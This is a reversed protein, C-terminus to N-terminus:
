ESTSLRKQPKPPPVAKVDLKINDDAKVDLKMNDEINIITTVSATAATTTTTIADKSDDHNNNHDEIRQEIQQTQNSNKNSYDNDKESEENDVHNNNEFEESKDDSKDDSKDENLEELKVPILPISKDDEDEFFNLFHSIRVGNGDYFKHSLYNAESKSIKQSSNYLKRVFEHSSMTHIQKGNEDNFALIISDKLTHYDIKFNKIASNMTEYAELEVHIEQDKITPIPPNDVNDIDNNALRSRYYIQIVELRELAVKKEQKELALM